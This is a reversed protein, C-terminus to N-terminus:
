KSLDVGAPSPDVKPLSGRQQRTSLSIRHKHAKMVTADLGRGLAKAIKEVPYQGAMEELRAIDEDSWLRRAM